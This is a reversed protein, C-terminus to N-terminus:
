DNHRAMGYLGWAALTVLVGSGTLWVSDVITGWAIAAVGAVSTTYISFAFSLNILDRSGSDEALSHAWIIAPHSSENM